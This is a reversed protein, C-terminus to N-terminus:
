IYISDMENDNNDDINGNNRMGNDDFRGTMMRETRNDNKGGDRLGDKDDGDIGDKNDIGGDDVTTTKNQERSNTCLLVIIFLLM